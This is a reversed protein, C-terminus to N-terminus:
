SSAADKARREGEDAMVSSITEDLPPEPEDANTEAAPSEAGAEDASIEAEGVVIEDDQSLTEDAAPETHEISETETNELLPTAQDGCLLVSSEALQRHLANYSKDLERFKEATQSFQGYVDRKYDSLEEEAARLQDELEAVRSKQGAGSRIFLWSIGAGAVFAVVGTLVLIEM